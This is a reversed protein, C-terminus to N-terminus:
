LILLIFFIMKSNNLRKFRIKLVENLVSRKLGTNGAYERRKGQTKETNRARQKRTKM